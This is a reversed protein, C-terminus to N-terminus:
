SDDYCVEPSGKRARGRKPPARGDNPAAPKAGALPAENAKEEPKRKDSIARGDKPAELRRVGDEQEALKTQDKGKGKNLDEALIKKIRDPSMQKVITAIKAIGLHILSKIDMYNAALIIKFIVENVGM